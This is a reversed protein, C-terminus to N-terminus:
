ANEEQKIGEVPLKSLSQAHSTGNSVSTIGGKMWNADKSNQECDTKIVLNIVM